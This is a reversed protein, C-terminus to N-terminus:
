WRRNAWRVYRAVAGTRQVNSVNPAAVNWFEASDHLASWRAWWASVSPAPSGCAMVRPAHYACRVQSRRRRVAEASTLRRPSRHATRLMRIWCRHYATMAIPTPSTSGIAIAAVHPSADPPSNTAPKRRAATIICAVNQM